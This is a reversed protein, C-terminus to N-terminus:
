AAEDLLEALAVTYQLQRSAARLEASIHHDVDMYTKGEILNDLVYLLAAAPVTFHASLAFILAAEMEVGEFGARSWQQVDDATEALMTECTTTTGEWIRTKLGYAEIRKRLSLRLATDPAFQKGQEPRGYMCANDNGHSLSPVILDGTQMGPALGGAMGVLINKRSGLMTAIHAYHSMLATGMVPVFWYIKSDVCMEYAHGLYLTQIPLIRITVGLEKQAAYIHPIHHETAALDWTGSALLGCVRYEAPLGYFQRLEAAGLSKYM